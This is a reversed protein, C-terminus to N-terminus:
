PAYRTFVYDHDKANAEHCAFCTNHQAVDAAKGNTFRGYGWGGTSAYRKADKVMVQVTTADGPVYAQPSASLDSPMTLPVHKWALKVLVTGNPFPLTNARYAKMAGKNGVILRLEDLTGAEHSPAVFEWNRYGIPVTVGYIPSRQVGTRQVGVLTASAIGAAITLTSVALVHKM